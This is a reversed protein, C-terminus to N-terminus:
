TSIQEKLFNGRFINYSNEINGKQLFSCPDTFYDSPSLKRASQRHNRLEIEKDTTITLIHGKNPLLM